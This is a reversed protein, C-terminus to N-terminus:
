SKSNYRESLSRIVMPEYITAMLEGMEQPTRKMDNTMWQDLISFFTYSIYSIFFALIEPNNVPYAPKARLHYTKLHHEKLKEILLDEAGVTKILKYLEAKSQWLQFFQTSASQFNSFSSREKDAQFARYEFFMEDLLEDLYNLLIEDKTQFHNYFTPRAINASECIESIKIKRSPSEQLLGLYANQIAQRTRQIQRNGKKNVM